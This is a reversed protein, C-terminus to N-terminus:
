AGAGWAAFPRAPRRSTMSAALLDLCFSHAGQLSKSAQKHGRECRRDEVASGWASHWEGKRKMKKKKKKLTWIFRVDLFILPLEEGHDFM